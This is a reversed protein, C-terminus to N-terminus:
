GNNTVKSALEGGCALYGAGDIYNDMNTNNNKMRALKLMTMMIAVDVPTIEVGLHVSWYSAIRAFNDELDGHQAARDKTVYSEATRLIETRKQFAFELQSM